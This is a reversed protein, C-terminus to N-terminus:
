GKGAKEEEGEKGNGTLRRWATQPPDGAAFANKCSL